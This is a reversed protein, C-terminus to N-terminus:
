DGPKEPTVHPISPDFALAPTEGPAAALALSRYFCTRYGRHCAVGDGDITVKVLLVDQDCDVRLEVVSLTNGSTEGKRWLAKRSRSWFWAQGSTITRSLAQRNMYAVMLVDGATADTVVAPILGDEDFKPAFVTGGEIAEPDARAAFSISANM